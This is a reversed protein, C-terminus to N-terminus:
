LSKLLKDVEGQGQFKDGLKALRDLEDKALSKKGAKMYLKALNLRFPAHSPQLDVVRKEIEIAKDVQDTDGLIMALTDMLAPQGPQLANAQEAYAAAGPKNLKAMAWALNNLAVVDKPQTRIVVEFANVAAQFDGRAIALLGLHSLFGPNDPHRKMWESAFKDADPAKAALMVSHLKSAFDSTDSLQLGARYAATAATWNKQAAAVDGEFLLGAVRGNPLGQVRRAIAMAEQPRGAALELVILERHAALLDPQIALARNISERAADVRNSALYIEALWLHPAPARPRMEILKNISAIASARDGLALHVRALAERLEANEPLAAVGDQSTSLAGKPDNSRLQADIVLIRAAPETPNLRMANQLLGLVEKKSGGADARLGAIALLAMVNKPDAALVPDFRKMAQEFKRDAIDMQVLSAIAPLYVPDSALAREFSQRASALDKRDLSVRGRITAAFAPLAKNPPELQKQELADLAKLAADANGRRLYASILALDAAGTKDAAAIDRLQAFGRDVDGKSVLTLALATRTRLDGPDAKVARAFYTEAAAPDNNLLSAQAALSLTGADIDKAQLLPALVKMAEEAHGARVHAQALQRRLGSADPALQLATSLHREAQAMSGSELEVSGALRLVRVDDPAVQLLKQVLEKATKFNRDFLALEAEFYAAQAQNPAIKKWDALANRAGAIDKQELLITVIMARSAMLDGRVRLAARHADLAAPLDHDVAYLLDGKLQLAEYNAPDERALNDVAAMAGKFNREDAMFRAEVVRARGYRPAAHLAAQLAERAKETKGLRAFAIALSTKLDAQAAAEPFDEDAFETVLKQFEGKLLMARALAPVAESARYHLGLAKRLEVDASVADGTDLLTSGLLFRADPSDPSKQLASKLQIVAAKQDNKALYQKASGILAEASDEGCGGLIMLAGLAAYCLRRSNLTM